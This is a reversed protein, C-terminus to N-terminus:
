KDVGKTFNGSEDEIWRDSDQEDQILERESETLDSLKTPTLTKQKPSRPKKPADELKGGGPVGGIDEFNDAVIKNRVRSQDKIQTPRYYDKVVESKKRIITGGPGLEDGRANVALNGVAPVLENKKALLDMDVVKGKASIYQKTM